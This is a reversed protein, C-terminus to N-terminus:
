HNCICYIIIICVTHTYQSQWVADRAPSASPRSVSLASWCSLRKTCLRWQFLTKIIAAGKVLIQLLRIWLLAHARNDRNDWVYAIDCFICTYWLHGDHTRIFISFYMFTCQLVQKNLLYAPCIKACWQLCNNVQDNILSVQPLIISVMSFDTGVKHDMVYRWAEHSLVQGLWNTALLICGKWWFYVVFSRDAATQHTQIGSKRVLPLAYVIPQWLRSRMRWMVLLCACM